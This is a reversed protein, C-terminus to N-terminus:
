RGNKNNEELITEATTTGGYLIGFNLSVAKGVWTKSRFGSVLAAADLTLAMCGQVSRNERCDNLDPAIGAIQEATSIADLTDVLDTLGAGIAAFEGVGTAFSALGILVTTALIITSRHAAIWHRASDFTHAVWHWGEAFTCIGLCLEGSLDMGNVPDSPYTYPNANGQYVPDPSTFLGTVPNYIRVGMVVLGSLNNAAKEHTGLWGYVPAVTSETSASRPLGFETSESYGTVSTDSTLSATAIVNGRLDTLNMTCTATTIGLCSSGGSSALTVNLADGQTIAGVYATTSTTSGVTTTTWAPSSSGAYDNTSTTTPTGTCSSTAYNSTSVVDGSPDYTFGECAAGQSLTAVLDDSRYSASLNDPSSSSGGAQTDVGPISTQRGLVDYAYSGTVNGSSTAWTSSIIRDSGGQGSANTDFSSTQNASATTTTPCAGGVPTSAASTFATRNSDADLTYTRTTCAGEFNDGVGVLRGAGDYSYVQSSEPSSATAVQAFPNDGQTFTMVDSAYGSNVGTTGGSAAYTYALQTAEGAPDYTTTAVMANPYLLTTANGDADYAAQYTLGSPGSCSSGAVVTESTVLPRFEVQGLADTGRYADCISIGAPSNTVPEISQVVESDVNYVYSTTAGNADTSSSVRGNADYTSSVSSVVTGPNTMAGLAIVDGTVYSTSTQLGTTPSYVPEVDNVAVSATAANDVTSTDTLRGALDYAYNTTRETVGSVSETVTQPQLNFNYAYARSPVPSGTAPPTAGGSTSTTCTLGDWQPNAGCAGGYNAMYITTYRSGQNSASALPQMQFVVIGYGDVATESTISSGSAVTVTTKSPTAFSLPSAYNAGLSMYSYTTTRYDPLATSAFDTALGATTLSTPDASTSYGSTVETQLQWPEMSVPNLSFSSGGTYTAYNAPTDLAYQHNTHARALTVGSSTTVEHLPGYSDTLEAGLPVGDLTSTNYFNLSALEEATEASGASGSAAAQEFGNASLSWLVNDQSQFSNNVDGLQQGYQQASVNWGSGIGSGTWAGGGYSATNVARGYGDLYTIMAHPWDSSSPSAAPVHDPPFIAVAGVPVDVYQSWSSPDTMTPLGAGSMPVGYSITSTSTSSGTTDASDLSQSLSSLRGAADYAFSVPNIGSVQVSAMPYTGNYPSASYAYTTALVPTGACSPAAGENLGVRPDWTERLYGGADYLFCRVPVTSMAGAGSAANPDWQTLDVQSLQGEALSSNYYSGYTHTADPLGTRALVTATTSSAYVFSLVRCGEYSSSLSVPVSFPAGSTCGSSAPMTAAVEQPQVYGTASSHYYWHAVSGGGYSPATVGAIEFSNWGVVNDNCGYISNSVSTSVNDDVWTTVSGSEDILTVTIDCIWASGVYQIGPSITAVMGNQYALGVPSLVPTTESPTTVNFDYQTGSPSAFTLSGGNTGGKSTDNLTDGAYGQDAPLNMTWDPGLESNDDTTASRSTYTDTVSASGGIGTLTAATDTISYEGTSLSLNGPGLNSTAMANSFAHALVDVPVANTCQSSGSALVFCVEVDIANPASINAAPLNLLLSPATYPNVYGTGPGTAPTPTSYGGAALSEIPGTLGTTWQAGTSAVTVYKSVNNACSGAAPSASALSYCVEASTYAVGNDSTASIPVTSSVDANAFPQSMGLGVQLTWLAGIGTNGAQDVPQVAITQQGSSGSPVTFTPLTIQNENASNVGAGVSGGGAADFQFDYQKMNLDYATVTCSLTLGTSPIQSPNIDQGTSTISPAPSPSTSVCSIGTDAPPTTDVVFPVWASTPSYSSGNFADIKWEYAVGDTLLASPVQFAVDTGPAIPSTLHSYIVSGSANAVYIQYALNSGDGETSYACLTPTVTDVYATSSAPKANSCNVPATGVLIPASPITDYTVTVSTQFQKWTSTSTAENGTFGLVVPSGNVLSQVASVLTSTSALTGSSGGACLPSSTTTSLAYGAKMGAYSAASALYVSGDRCATSGGTHVTMSISASDVHDGSNLGGMTFVVGSRWITSSSASQDGEFSGQNVGSGNTVAQTAGDSRYNIGSSFNLTATPDVTIPWSRHASRLWPLPLSADLIWSGGTRGASLVFALQHTAPNKASDSALSNPILLPAEGRATFAIGRPTARPTYGPASILFSWDGGAASALSPVVIDQSISSSGLTEVVASGRVARGFDVESGSGRGRDTLAASGALNSGVTAHSLSVGSALLHPVKFRSVTLSRRSAVPASGVGLPTMSFPLGSPDITVLPQGARTSSSFSPNLPNSGVLTIASGTQRLTTSVKVWRGATNRTRVPFLSSSMTFTGDPNAYTTTFDTDDSAIHIRRHEARATQMASIPDPRSTVLSALPTPAAVAALTTGTSLVVTPVVLLTSLGAIAARRTWSRQGFATRRRRWKTSESKTM